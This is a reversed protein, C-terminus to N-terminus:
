KTKRASSKSTMYYKERADGESFMVYFRPRGSSFFSPKTVNYFCVELNFFVKAGGVKRLSKDANQLLKLLVACLMNRKWYTKTNRYSEELILNDNWEIVCMDNRVFSNILQQQRFQLPYRCTLKLPEDWLLHM